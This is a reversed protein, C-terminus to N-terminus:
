LDGGTANQLQRIHINYEYVTQLYDTHALVYGQLATIVKEAKELGAQFDAFSSIMWRRAARSADELKQVATFDSDVYHYQEAVQFPIGQRALSSKAILADLEAQAQEVKASQVSGNWDWKLGVVPSVGYDNFPDSIFPNNVRSREPSYALMGVVGTYINPLGESRNASLLERRARLGAAVQKMEPREGLARQQLEKLTAKPRELPRLSKDAVTVDADLGLGTLTKLGDLAIQETGQAEAIFKRALALGSQLAYLDSQKAGNTGEELWRKVADIAGDLREAVQELLLRTDRAALYGYYAQYVDLVTQAQQIRIDQKKVEVNAKAAATYSGIKGFTYLPKVLALQVNLWPSLGSVDYRDSRPVCDGSSCSGPVFFGGHLEPSVGVFANSDLKWGRHGLAEDVQGRAMAVLHQRELIRPDQQLALHVAQDLNLEQANAQFCSFLIGFLSASIRARNKM